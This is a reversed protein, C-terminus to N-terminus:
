HEKKIIKQEQRSSIYDMAMYTIDRFNELDQEFEPGLGQLLGAIRFAKLLWEKEDLNM